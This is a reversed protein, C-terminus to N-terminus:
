KNLKSSSIRERSHAIQGMALDVIVSSNRYIAPHMASGTWFRVDGHM